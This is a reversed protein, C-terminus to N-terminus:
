CATAALLRLGALVKCASLLPLSGILVGRAAALLHPLHCHNYFDEGDQSALFHAGCRGRTQSVLRLLRKRCVKDIAALATADAIIPSASV